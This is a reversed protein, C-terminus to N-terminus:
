QPADDKRSQDPRKVPRTFWVILILLALAVGMELYIVWMTRAKAGKRAIRIRAAQASKVFRAGGGAQVVQGAGARDTSALYWCVGKAAIAPQGAAGSAGPRRAKAEPQARRAAPEAKRRSQSAARASGASSSAAARVKTSACKWAQASAEASLALPPM